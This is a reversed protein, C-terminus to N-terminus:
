SISLQKTFERKMHLHHKQQIRKKGGRKQALKGHTISIDEKEAKKSEVLDWFSVSNQYTSQECCLSRRIKKKKCQQIM